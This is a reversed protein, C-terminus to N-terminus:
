FSYIFRSGVMWPNNPSRNVGDVRIDMADGAFLYAAGVNFKLNPGYVAFENWWGFEWGIDKDDRPNGAGDLANGYTNGNTTTDYIYQGILTVKYWPAVKYSTWLRGTWMGGLDSRHHQGGYSAGYTPNNGTMPWGTLLGVGDPTGITSESGAPVVYMGVESANTGWPTTGPLGTTTSKKLDAGSGYITGAGFEFREWPYSVRARVLYGKYDVDGTQTIREDSVKGKDMVFDGVFNVPGLKGEGYAGAWWIKSTFSTTSTSTFSTAGNYNNPYNRMNYFLGYGGVKIAGLNVDATLGYADNDDFAFEKGESPKFWQASLIVPDAKFGLTVGAGDTAAVLDPRVSHPQIGIRATMPVPVGFYPLAFDFYLHKVEVAARDANWFGASNRTGDANGWVSDMEFFITGSMEKGYLMDFKLRGRTQNTEVTKDLYAGRTGGTVMQTSPGAIAPFTSGSNPVNNYTHWNWDIFGSAKFQLAPPAAVPAAAPAAPAAQQAFVTASFALILLGLFSLTIAKKM